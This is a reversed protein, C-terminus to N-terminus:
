LGDFDDVTSDSLSGIAGVVVVAVVGVAVLAGLTIWGYRTMRASGPPDTARRNLAVIGMVLSPLGLLCCMATAIGSVVTLVVASTNPTPPPGYPTYPGPPSGYPGTPSGYPEPPLAHPSQGYATSGYPQQTPSPRGYPAAGYPFDQPSPTPPPQDTPAWAGQASGADPAPSSAADPSPPAVSADPSTPPTSPGPPPSAWGPATPDQFGDGSDAPDTSDTMTADDEGQAV